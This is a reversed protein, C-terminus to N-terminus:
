QELVCKQFVRIDRPIESSPISINDSKQWLKAINAITNQNHKGHYIRTLHGKGKDVCETTLMFCIIWIRFCASDPYLLYILLFKIFLALFVTLFFFDSRLTTFLFMFSWVSLQRLSHSFCIFGFSRVQTLYIICTWIQKDTRLQLVHSIAAEDWM